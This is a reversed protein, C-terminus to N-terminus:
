PLLLSVWFLSFVKKQIVFIEYYVRLLCVQDLKILALCVIWMVVKVTSFSHVGSSSHASNQLTLASSSRSSFITPACLSLGVLAQIPPAEKAKVSENLLGKDCAGLEHQLLGCHRCLGKLHEFIFELEVEVEASFAFKRSIRVRRKTDLVLRIRQEMEKRILAFQDFQIVRGM